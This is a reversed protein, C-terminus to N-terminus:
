GWCLREIEVVIDSVDALAGKGMGSCALISECPEVFLFGHRKLKEINEQVISNEYMTTNMAPCVLVPKSGHALIVTSLMDDAIGGALKGIINASAPAVVFIDALRSLSIHRVDHCTIEEFM